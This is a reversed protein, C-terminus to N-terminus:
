KEDLLAVCPVATFCGKRTEVFMGGVAKKDVVFATITGSKTKMGVHMIAGDCGRQIKTIKSELVISKKVFEKQAAKVEKSDKM